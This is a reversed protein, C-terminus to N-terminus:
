AEARITPAPDPSEDESARANMFAPMFTASAAREVAFSLSNTSAVPALAKL